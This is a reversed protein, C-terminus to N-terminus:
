ENIVKVEHLQSIEVQCTVSLSDSMISINKKRRSLAKLTQYFIKCGQATGDTDRQGCKLGLVQLFRVTGLGGLTQLDPGGNEEM